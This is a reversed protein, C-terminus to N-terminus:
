GTADDGGEAPESRELWRGLYAHMDAIQDRDLLVVANGPPLDKPGDATVWLRLWPWVREGTEEPDLPPRGPRTIWGPIEAVDVSGSRPSDVDPLVHSGDYRVPGAGCTCPRADDLVFWRGDAYAVRLDGSPRPVAPVEVWRDCDDTHDDADAAWTSAYISM